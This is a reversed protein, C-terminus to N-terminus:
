ISIWNTFYVVGHLEGLFEDIAPISLKDKITITNLERYYPSMNWSGEKKYVMVMPTSYSSQIFRIIGIELMEEVM